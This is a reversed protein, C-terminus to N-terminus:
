CKAVGHVTVWWAGRDMPNGLCPYQLLTGNGEGSSRGSEPSSGLDAANAPWNKVVSGGPFGWLHLRTEELHPKPDSAFIDELVSKKRVVACKVVAVPHSLASV